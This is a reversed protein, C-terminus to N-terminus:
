ASNAPPASSSPAAPATLRASSVSPCALLTRLRPTAPPSSRASAASQWALWPHTMTHNGILHGAAAIARAIQPRQRVFRGILFFTARVEHRALVELLRETAIDNPGDDYTLAIENPNRSAVLVPGFFQSQASLAAYTLVGAAATAAALIATTTLQIQTM